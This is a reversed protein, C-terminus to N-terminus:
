NEGSNVAGPWPTLEELGSGLVCPSICFARSTLSCFPHQLGLLLGPPSSSPSEPACVYPQPLCSPEPSPLAVPSGQSHPLPCSRAEPPITEPSHHLPLCQTKPPRKRVEATFSPGLLLPLCLPCTLVTKVVPAFSPHACRHASMCFASTLGLGPTGWPGPPLLSLQGQVLPSVRPAQSPHLPPDAPSCM